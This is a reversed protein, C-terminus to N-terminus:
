PSIREGERDKKLKVFDFCMEEMSYDSKIKFGVECRERSFERMQKFNIMKAWFSSALFRSEAM